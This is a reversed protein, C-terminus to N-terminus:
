SFHKLEAELQRVLSENGNARAVQLRREVSKQINQRHAQETKQVAELRNKIM